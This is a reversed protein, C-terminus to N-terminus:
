TQATQTVRQVRRAVLEVLRDLTECGFGEDRLEDAVRLLVGDVRRAVDIARRRVFAASMGMTEAFRIWTKIDFADFNSARGIPMAM